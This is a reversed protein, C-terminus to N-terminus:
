MPGGGGFGGPPPGGFGGRMMGAPPMPMGPPPGHPREGDRLSEFNGRMNQRMKKPYLFFMCPQFDFGQLDKIASPVPNSACPSAWARTSAMIACAYGLLLSEGIWAVLWLHSDSAFHQATGYANQKPYYCLTQM